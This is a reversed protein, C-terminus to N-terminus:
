FAGKLFNILLNKFVEVESDAYKGGDSVVIANINDGIYFTITGKEHYKGEEWATFHLNKELHMCFMCKETDLDKRVMEECKRRLDNLYKFKEIRMKIEKRKILNFYYKLRREKMM